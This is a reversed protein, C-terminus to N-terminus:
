EDRVQDEAVPSADGETLDEIADFRARGVCSGIGSVGAVVGGPKCAVERPTSKCRRIRLIVPIHTASAHVTKTRVGCGGMSGHEAWAGMSPELGMFTVQLAARAPTASRRPSRQCGLHRTPLPTAAGRAACARAPQTRSARTLSVAQAAVCGGRRGQTIVFVHTRVGRGGGGGESDGGGEMLQTEVVQDCLNSKRKPPNRTM